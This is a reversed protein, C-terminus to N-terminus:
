RMPGEINRLNRADELVIALGGLTRFSGAEVADFQM